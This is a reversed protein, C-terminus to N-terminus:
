PLQGTPHCNLCLDDYEEVLMSYNETEHPFNQFPPNDTAYVSTWTSTSSSWEMADAASVTATEADGVSGGGTLEGVDRSDEHCQQCIPYHGGQQATRPYPMLFGRNGSPNLDVPWDHAFVPTGGDIGGLTSLITTATPENSALVAVNGYHFPTSTEDSGDVPHNMVMGGSMRGEHCSACWDSGYVTTTTDAGTPQQRLLRTSTISPTKTRVRRRDGKFADVTEAGHPSHCDTCILTGDPGKFTRTSTGGTTSDGGPIVNTTEYSHGGGPASGTRAEIVGYVGWGGTGDHCTFCTAVITAEPLLQTSGAPANHVAHCNGCKTTGTTYGGHPGWFKGQDYGPLPGEPEDGHCDECPMDPYPSAPGGFPHCYSCGGAGGLDNPESYAYAQQAVVLSVVAALAIAVLLWLTLQPQHISQSIQRLPM